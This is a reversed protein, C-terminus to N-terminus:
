ILCDPYISSAEDILNHNFVFIDEIYLCIQMKICYNVASKFEYFIYYFLLIFFLDFILFGNTNYWDNGLYYELIKLALVYKSFNLIDAM